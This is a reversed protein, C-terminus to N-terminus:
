NDTTKFVTLWTERLDTLIQVVIDYNKQRMQEQCFQYLRMLGISINKTEQSDFNLANILESLAKNTKALDGRKSNVIAFDYIKLLLKKPDADLIEKVLYANARNSSKFNSQSKYM